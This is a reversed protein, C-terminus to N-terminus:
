HVEIIDSLPQPCVLDSVEGRQQKLEEDLREVEESARDLEEESRRLDRKVRDIELELSKRADFHDDGIRRKDTELSKLASQLDRM